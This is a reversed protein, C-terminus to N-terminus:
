AEAAVLEENQIRVVVLLIGAVAFFICFAFFDHGRDLLTENGIDFVGPRNLLM